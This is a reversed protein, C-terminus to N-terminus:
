DPKKKYNYSRTLEYIKNSTKNEFFSMQVLTVVEEDSQKNSFIEIEVKHKSNQDIKFNIGKSLNELKMGKDHLHWIAESVVFTEPKLSKKLNQFDEHILNILPDNIKILSTASSKLKDESILKYKLEPSNEFILLLGFILSIIAVFVILPNKKKM